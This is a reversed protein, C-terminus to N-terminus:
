PITMPVRKTFKEKGQSLAKQLSYVTHQTVLQKHVHKSTLAEMQFANYGKDQTTM